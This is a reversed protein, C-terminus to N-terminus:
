NQEFMTEVKEEHKDLSDNANEHDPNQKKYFVVALPDFQKFMSVSTLLSTLLTGGRLVWSVFGATIGMSIATVIEIDHNNDYHFQMQDKMLKINERLVTTDNSEYDPLYVTDHLKLLSDRNISEKYGIKQIPNQKLEENDTNFSLQNTFLKRYTIGPITYHIDAIHKNVTPVDKISPSVEVPSKVDNVTNNNNSDTNNILMNINIKNNGVHLANSTLSENTDHNDTYSAVVTIAKGLEAQTLTYHTGTAGEIAVEDAFWQYRILGLGDIDALDNIVTLTQGIRPIGSITVKGSPAHNVNAVATTAASTVAEATGHGDTYSATVTIAKGVEAETLVYSSGTGVTSGNAQWTYTIAGLGDADSLTNAATLTQGQTVTGAITVSGTPADNVNAVASTPNSTVAEATGHGDTYSATVTIAKGVEAETLVYSSGTGVTSGNAQWTYTIAGLGDADSLTNAATLTQGQTVTGAITVSGTPADNVNAVATTAASTVAEATGHGDTYSATVTIAKGVEAETLVYSSGTGVTSGNAQWTYTIAGLGDADSLTNAATLTQGQTVTGAITVSGTPADNVNAVATTAASTVAEATGHGDTYSATVTIAKGVEAETLVYSSGTGVTSGNAQWTYTIAGLGDADSLTNAATLTQGQTVTGAITVSGTPADNVNAVATTAASTVAEATGHGDTYSATVTIAKGVEAETLVYSSGTGVTSGNAQWTYTIAGLGDADSLTNAATLTQGQTVTGAITVSGTPADNVNAVASTPNSTVAEATGHGDTYSATVTIAKGVEAETLVYSSGTGVTSGNAQWTYTIAGLGDADSLTNAATLTQGQTVTGAITVSGTPADNVNAVATTAASTVAEATGHGDTYSATVTIAKGVEAETLVYSSGTGVTSGNAQWTYTIAGLGDADSLTNAATLTQGQTVTGAITVSGTPADNVNAVATTAASTVAEATGHGDTYSATVTIAKGVEAETLVYSSGTGVTSGNAQWTYTIAGLGDADSLTNAATLTQGQTVTGAITVSGTPADNVNAVATTAASTVAEATGHGDTYSATVTIAKGVEAETLVYSSGTGVTSGNAQWTYTIAGLGDADSLTNAATLTQGQTVTGAITVSGTPADNVNAVATTAASTVAEATGHGDTYSATVTIAKGVEAETLVYSSGTGVTSGNAQWTYTIAGLGDADSLTNAATLTQGQTVTGAITVSGTPADNVNAVATTAASTVAEATGHGDTYSATVTIAKGVEAETLVYSSGTGVTSGNAQWTYTIAGLGDADSLTNAATLTQGQTVTGAITVSGTPADNVNAVATTAASTVAEATGHGDTYSATVTIAKGVEAETLVYSSGTGVTSGNAQWTYTIAGLGDADSLTNAATLTQGQTVTGAITVSGTPADNVNAVATTAASTVAEATGHGDTYSATVTIAKGVEAETLVYSSGTGVTSGNAQWTYTIAGLGDADSLTNAATLTQGQTVTGAITVSGTPADNVNAVASTPNSTVAEATGHGDTYSATVTIAKGVEAETLVYSSGTGVTSGNAQWTYTIAGLGDADSLTNAATLTQGQTVTGAITVSGTPADNVNAVATTAASTVAEATGHGDTYSATVTIAKGVEAETLVYSSGTGVTSGNAQWTYTIAGLGDADSLTNAATLTQGQTVTGAITVSGTPADNVNAVATTAASTVAEATGHGDTYSATVTIAKGVEAETLVYSSGTGVTSGNAQWTYTIAGLGDADSLTNAATLTQGQTVTGAITVSGTPADNVNAVATTAASTVAEATGHGDTYSATVTIAKGVEAETLVYSSGTGVTSGNAQWTYTIAGLGDADSLTNAATLTQGQTVTGAITVSGTPADNVNAVASTPNSTVAEATGHGDTYSATVTIAKGVEAETLVYSSGTGVTSGNAQWTYTIAGLGDADSLTNAATLTQGQTVTGAITVSGTPADNVNAVATTAASTVAEATGHGDTYSATVTIAKGVEAETLVYSSGTGVTSGNAQWTYTIAGLGDADSLTNAATLTQGQTVTGAITVSGTPADNVNAVATTAASTVAEATGHGDTYSATVTIAKGVEAETLVYSSGTGVTSGNAQWTYTIAGLGDADSLTNAATLTQGQTVTGAITVSGTPADNVNAVATTAASTVAEATGHGDTYSATVTIAKGVEAETLVYSSGTGVTSGNAQWTYTIAGLGDADSLTNAATLTQGQTVTGAITVSGTPADNVNAVATTAASTVAEATGHGDTYSATVTIAKGVEAETLVYSSGTGVTSGNAQWTYTIAGLGDADSLTNAATLTQGQTVTGAITVSGTPADNVNAVATTAASTVAEATGHGDTYSATVTIAKGVEAETLVYSSGTGVTSGNAQWTYTIAGLGDADSLTNAATLTQGQTVTGAITVSGTPADNVNAVATTAASTVAEATGHGDTYSATVTIAKGVEAETLVYSSGTGVTSGNAQWTYTIAGLGDADSLTNAATLTQGQTPTTDNISVSGTPADNTASITVSTSGTASLAGGSGQSGSNGDSFTWNIQMSAPPADSTNSYAIQQMASNVLAGTANGNFVLILTGGFNQLVGGIVIGNLVLSGEDILPSLTGTASFVDEANAGGNRTLTLTAGNFNNAASLEADFIQVDADLVVAAGGETYTPAGDLTNIPDITADMTGDTNYRLLAIDYDTGNWTKGSVVIKGDAQIAVALGEDNASGIATTVMGDGGGFSTDLSGDSHYRVVAVDYNSGNHSRGVLVIKGDSQLQLDYARDAGAGLSTVVIGTGGLSTDLSGDSNYRVLVMDNGAYGAAVLKGDAQVALGTFSELGLGDASTTVLGDGGGFSTDLSGDSNYRAIALDYNGGGGAVVIKGDPQVVLSTPIDAATGGFSTTVVGDGGGFSTDLSGDTNYRVVLFDTGAGDSHGGVLIKGDAQVVVTTGVENVGLDTTVIGDGGGFSTDPSGDANLRVLLVDNQSSPYSYGILLIKGDAQLTLGMGNQQDVAPVRYVGDGGGFSTDLSGDSNYRTVTMATPSGSTGVVLVKGDPQVVVDQGTEGFLINTTVNGDGVSFTPADNVASVTVTTDYNASTGGDGDTLVYRVTRAGTTPAATDTNEYTINQVLATVATPTASANLTIVLNTGGSGGTFTGITVGEYTINSGSVGIQGAGTGQNRISLRDEASDSGATFSVTLTGTNFDTSDVDAVLANGSQEIVVAGAGESYALSDGSLNTITPADNVATINVTTSGTAQLAGGTGQAGANGDNFTWNIQVSAPPTDSSNAYAVQQMASNVRANTASANFTFVLTGASNTYTGITVGGVILNGSAAAISSLTGTASYVDQANAGGNRALTLTAGSFNNAASLEADFVQVDADLVVAAGGETYTPTGNLTNVPDLTTDLSGTSSYRNLAIKYGGAGGVQTTGSVVIRGDTQVAVSYGRDDSAGSYDTTVIGDGGGFTTDLTGDTNLRVLGVDNGNTGATGTVLIKGDSQITLGDALDNGGLNITVKGGSGFGTDLTGNTNYRAIAFDNTGGTDSWGAVVIKGDAQIRVENGMDSSNAGFDTLVKGTGNFSTDLSGDPNYRVLAVDFSTGNFGFGALVVKGDAQIALSDARDNGGALDTSVYGSGGGFSTDLSGSSTFRMLNFNNNSLNAAVLFTGDSQLAVDKASGTVGSSAIGDGGGFSTDLSGDANFRVLCVQYAGTTTYGALVVKGDAQLVMAEARGAIGAFAVGDGGGFSTDLTGDANYRTLSFDDSGGSNSYGGVLIKGDPQVITEVGFESGAGLSTLVQGDGVAFTPADNAASVTVTTDHNASTGGDGDTLVFRVTRAGTTPAATDTNTYTINTVLATVATPTASANFAIVLNTGGSGGTFTGITVGEYTVNSGSVGIQGAGTGQNRISLVDEASDGGVPISVTLTGTNFDTSDVDAVLANGSQEIVVAGAGESYALSDGSLNTITPADNVGTITVTVSGTAQLAGGTGQSGTNGDSFTWNIQASAPPADSSNSYAVQQMASNVLANTANANFTFVLTGASNTYTGITVGGVILNGSAAAISSLTGTASYVDQANAGGNRTLTLTAGSFNNAASLEADLVQVNADLVVASGGETFAVTGGLTTVVDFSTDLSGDSNYRVLAFDNNTGNYGQGAVLIKGDAQATVSYSYDDGTGIATILMGDGSFSTDLTGDSNYRVVAFDYNSGNHASGAVLIKGDAQVTVSFGTDGGTGIATTLIGDGGGFSTDLTGDSNYRVLAVDDNSGNSSSGAFLIKGDTQVTVSRGYDTGAGIATTLKGDGGGFSTDLTGDSNVRVLAFVANGGNFSTGALLIKGDAQLTVSDAYDESGAGIAITLIGDTSFSTDLSGDSNYRVLAFDSDIGNNGYGGALIKGDAQVTVSSAWDYGSGIATTVIGDGGGFSTDLTGDSNYRVLAFDPNGGNFSTGALLIKGDAQVTVSTGYDDGSGIAITLKGDGSFSTDLSGDSNYRTLTFDNNTGNHSTGAVLIKGDAQVTVESGEDNGAGITTTLVGDGPGFAPADNVATVTVTTDHNASTGGDGDTLVFRVTRAGTTPTATDTNQYTINQVLASVAAATANANLTIVLNTGGSGGTFTGINLADYTLNIGLVGILGTGNGQNRVSLVDEASDSGATFSVTLTGTNFNASDVDAVLANGGQEIVVAGAGESYALSDGSLNTITPADNVATVNFTITNPSQDLDVGGNATGGSDQVQFTFSAYGTGNGDAWSAYSLNGMAIDAATVVQNATAAGWSTGNYYWLVGASPLTAIKVAQLSNGDGDSFGFNAAAFVHFADENITITTDAGGPADNVPTVDVNMTATSGLDSARAFSTLALNDFNPQNVVGVLRVQLAQGNQAAFSTGDVALTGSVFSGRVTTVATQDVFGIRTAGAWLEVRFEPATGYSQRWGVEFSLSYNNAANFTTGLTQSLTSGASAYLTSDHDTAFEAALPNYAGADAGTTTWGNAPNTWGGDGLGNAEGDPNFISIATTQVPAFNFQAYTQLNNGVGPSAYGDHGTENADPLFRVLGADITAKTFVQNVSVATWVSGNYYQLTGDAPKSLVRVATNAGITTDVDSLNFESWTFVRATDEVGTVSGGTSTPADNVATVTVTADYNASTGGDGDTLVFRVTRAGTTASITDTDEFTINKVLATAAAASSSANFTIVLNAGGSGGTFTGITVGQYTVNSGSVGIQGAGTGQNRIGLVDEASDSGAVFSVTLTGGSFNASGNDTVVAATGQDIVLAGSGEAYSLNDGSLNTISPNGLVALESVDTSTLARNYVRVDDLMGNVVNGYLGSAEYAGITTTTAANLVSFFATSTASGASFSRSAAAGDIYLQNGSGNVTFAVHHWNGDNITSFSAVDFVSAADDTISVALKGNFLWFSLGNQGGADKLNFIQQFGSVSTNVWASITGQSLAHFSATHSNLNVADGVGDLAVKGGGVINTTSTTNISANYVLTGNRGNGSSDNANANFNWHGVLGTTIDLVGDYATQAQTAVVVAGEIAGTTVELDWDGGLHASGTRDDSAAIDAGTLQALRQVFAVGQEGAAVDCGYLVIDADASLAGAWGALAGAHHELAGADLLDSGLQVTGQAGHSVIHVADLKKYNSLIQNLQSIGDKNTDLYAIDIQRSDDGQIKIGDVLQQYNNIGTDVIVLEHRTAAAVTQPIATTVPGTQEPEAATESAIAGTIRVEAGTLSGLGKLLNQGNANAVLDTDNILFKGDPALSERWAEIESNNQDFSDINFITNSLKLSGSDNQAILYVAELNTHGALTDSIQSIVDKQSDLVVVEINKYGDAQALINNLQGQYNNVTPDIFVVAQPSSSAANAANSDDQADSQQAANTESIPTYLKTPLQLHPRCYPKREPPFCNVPRWSKLSCKPM